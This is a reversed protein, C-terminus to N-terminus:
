VTLAAAADRLRERFATVQNARLGVLLRCEMEATYDAYAQWIAEGSETLTGNDSLRGRSVLGELVREVTSPKLGIAAAREEVGMDPYAHLHDIMRVEAGTMGHSACFAAFERTLDAALREILLSVRLEADSTSPTM